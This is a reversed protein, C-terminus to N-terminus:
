IRVLLEQIQFGVAIFTCNKKGCEAISSFNAGNQEEQSARESQVM